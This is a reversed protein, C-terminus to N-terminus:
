LKEASTWRVHFCTMNGIYSDAKTVPVRGLIYMLLDARIMREADWACITTRSRFGEYSYRLYPLSNLNAMVM